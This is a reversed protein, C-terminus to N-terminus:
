IEACMKETDENNYLSNETELNKRRVSKNSWIKGLMQLNALERQEGQPRRKELSFHGLERLREGYSCNELGLPVTFVAPNKLEEAKSPWCNSLLVKSVKGVGKSPQLDSSCHCRRGSHHLPTPFSPQPTDFFSNPLKGRDQAM